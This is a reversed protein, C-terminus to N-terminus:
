LLGAATLAQKVTERSAATLPALPLRVEEGCKGMMALAAKVPVPNVEVFMARHVPCLARHEKRADDLKGAAFLDWTRAMRAPAANATVSIVGRAGCAWLPLCTMDDGSLVTVKDGCRELVLQTRDMDATAEKLGVVPALEAIRAMTDPKLDVGTRSPVNYVVIPLGVAAVAAFHRYLGEPSPKNYYPTIVLAGAAGAKQAHETLAVAESTSNSGTGAVVPVRGRAQEVVIEVVRRHEAHSLTASEGTTGCPVLGDTGGDIQFDVLARLREEDVAGDRFPTVLAVYSGEFRKM